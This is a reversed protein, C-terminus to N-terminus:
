LSVQYAREGWTVGARIPCGDAIRYDIRERSEHIDQSADKDCEDPYEREQKDAADDGDHDNCDLTPFLFVFPRM